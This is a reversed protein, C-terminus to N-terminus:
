QNAIAQATELHKQLIPLGKQAFAKLQENDGNKAYAEFLAIGEKHADVQTQAFAKDFGSGKADKLSDAIVQHREDLAAPPQADIGAAKALDMLEKGSNGHDKVLMQGFQKVADSGGQDAAMQGTQIEFMDSMAAFSVFDKAATVRSMAEVAAKSNDTEQALAPAAGSLLLVAAAARIIRNM